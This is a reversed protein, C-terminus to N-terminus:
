DDVWENAETGGEVLFLFLLFCFFLACRVFFFPSMIQGDRLGQEKTANYHLSYRHPHYRDWNVYEIHAQQYVEPGKGGGGGAGFLLSIVFCFLFFSPKVMWRDIWGQENMGNCYLGM